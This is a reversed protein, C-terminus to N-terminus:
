AIYFDISDLELFLLESNKWFDKILKIQRYSM